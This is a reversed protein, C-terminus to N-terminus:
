EITIHDMIYQLGKQYLVYEAMYGRGYTKVVNEYTDSAQKEIEEDTVNWNETEAIAQYFILSKADDDIMEQVTEESAGSKELYDELTVAYSMYIQCSLYNRAVKQVEETPEIANIKPALAALAAQRLFYTEYSEELFARVDAVTELGESYLSENLEDKHSKVFDDTFEPTWTIYNIKTKFVAEKGSLDPNPKYPDPFTVKVDITEGPMHGIIQDLFDDIYNKAGAVVDQNDATGGSFKVGDVYGVYSINVNDGKLVARNKQQQAFGSLIQAISEEYTEEPLAYNSRTLKVESFDPLTFLDLARIGEMYGGDTFGFSFDVPPKDPDETQSETESSTQSETDSTPEESSSTTQPKKCGALVAATLVFGLLLAILRKM